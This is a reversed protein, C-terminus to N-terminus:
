IESAFENHKIVFNSAEYTVAGIKYYFMCIFYWPMKEAQVDPVEFYDLFNAVKEHCPAVLIADM